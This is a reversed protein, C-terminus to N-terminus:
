SSVDAELLDPLADLGPPRPLPTMDCALLSVFNEGDSDMLFLAPPTLRLTTGNAMATAPPATKNSYFCARTSEQLEELQKTLTKPSQKDGSQKDEAPDKTPIVMRRFVNHLLIPTRQWFDKQHAPRAYIM